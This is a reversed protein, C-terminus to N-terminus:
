SSRRLIDNEEQLSRNKLSAEDLLKALDILVHDTNWIQNDYEQIQIDFYHQQIIM